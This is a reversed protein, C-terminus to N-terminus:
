DNHPEGALIKHPTQTARRRGRGCRREVREGASRLRNCAVSAGVSVGDPARTAISATHVVLVWAGLAVYVNM